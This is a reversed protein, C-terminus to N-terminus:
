PGTHIHPAWRSPQQPYLARLQRTAHHVAPATADLRPPAGGAALATYVSRTVRVADADDIPWLTAIVHRYGALLCAAALHIPEDPLGAGSRATTCSSLFALDGDLRARSLDLVTLPRSRYDALLLHSASPDRLDSVGHCSYHVWSHGSLAATVTDHTAPPTSPLGLVDVQGPMLDTLLAAEAAAGPLDSQGPTTPMAVVLVRQGGNTGDYTLRSPQRAELLARVTPIISSVVRDIVTAPEPDFRTDHHGAAHLPLSTLPGSPCWYVRLWPRSGGPAGTFGLYDLVPGTIRDWLWGLVGALEAEAAARFAADANVDQADRLYALFRNAQEVVAATDVGGLPVVDVGSSRLILADSRADSVNVLVVPGGAAAPLLDDVPRPQLFVEFGPQRRIEKLLVELEAAAERRRDAEAGPRVGSDAGSDVAMVTGSIPKDPRDLEDTLRMFQQALAPHAGALDTLDTRADLAQAFLVGRGQEFLEVARGKLGAQLCAAAALSGLGALESLRYEQDARGLGRPAVEGVLRVALTLGEVAELPDSAVCAIGWRRAAFARPLPPASVVGAAERSSTVVRRLDALAGAREYRVQLALGLNSLLAARDPHDAPTAAVAQEGVDVARDLDAL